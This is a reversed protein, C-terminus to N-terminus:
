IIGCFMTWRRMIGPGWPALIPSAAPPVTRAATVPNRRIIGSPAFAAKVTVARDPMTFIYKGNGRVTLRIENGRSDTVTVGSIEYGQDPTLTLTVTTGVAASKHSATVKGGDASPTEVPHAAPGGGGSGGGGSSGGSGGSGGDGSSISQFNATVTTNRAPMILTTSASGPDAVAAGTWGSFRKGSPVAASINVTTGAAYSGSGTGGNVTLTYTSQGAATYGIAYTSFKDAYITIRGNASDAYFTGDAPAGPVSTLASLAAASGGHSRYVTVGTKGTFDYPVVVTLVRGRTDTIPSESAGGGSVVTKLLSLDLYLEVTKGQAANDIEAKDAPREKKEVTLKVTVAEGPRVTESEALEDVGGAVVSPTNDKVEVVSNKSGGPMKINQDAANRDTLEVLITKTVGDKEAVVNYLGPAVGTFSYNGSGDTSASAVETRGRMLKVTASALANDEHDTVTGSIAFTPQELKPVAETRAAQCVTCTYTRVGEASATPPTTVVGEDWTHAAYGSKGSNETVPCGSSACDHWHHAADRSWAEAWDHTHPLPIVSLDKANRLKIEETLIASGDASFGYGEKLLSAYTMPTDGGDYPVVASWGSSASVHYTGGSLTVRAEKDWVWLGYREGSFSGGSIVCTGDAQIGCIPLANPDGFTGGAINVTAGSRMSLARGGAATALLSSDQPVTLTGGVAYIANDSDQIVAGSGDKKPSADYTGGKLIVTGDAINLAESGVAPNAGTHNEGPLGSTVTVGGSEVTLSGSWVWIGWGGRNSASTCSGGLGGRLTGTGTLTVNAGDVSLASGGSCNGFTSGGRGGQITHGNLDLTFTGADANFNKLPSATADAVMQIYAVASDAAAAELAENLSGQNTLHEADAGEVAHAHPKQIVLDGYIDEGNEDRIYVTHTYVTIEQGNQDYETREESELVARAGAPATFALGDNLVLIDELELPTANLLTIVPYTGFRGSHSTVVTDEGSVTLTGNAVQIGGDTGGATLIIDHIHLDGNTVELETAWSNELTLTGGSPGSLDLSANEVDIDAQYAHFTNAGVIQLYLIDDQARYLDGMNLGSGAYKVINNLSRDDVELDTLTLTPRVAGGSQVLAFEARGCSEYDTGALINGANGATVPVGCVM